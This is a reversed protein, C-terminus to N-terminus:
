CVAQLGVDLGAVRFVCHLSSGVMYFCVRDSLCLPQISALCHCVLYWATNDSLMVTLISVILLKRLLEFLEFRCVTICM